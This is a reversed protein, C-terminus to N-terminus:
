GLILGNWVRRYSSVGPCVAGKPARPHDRQYLYFKWARVCSSGDGVNQHALFRDSENGLRGQYCISESYVLSGSLVTLPRSAEWTSWSLLPRKVM